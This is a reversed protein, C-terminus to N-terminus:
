RDPTKRTRPHGKRKWPWFRPRCEEIVVDPAHTRVHKVILNKLEAERAFYNGISLHEKDTWLDLTPIRKPSTVRTLDCWRIYSSSVLGRYRIGHETVEVKVRGLTILFVAGVFLVGLVPVVGENSLHFDVIKPFLCVRVLGTNYLIVYACFAIAVIGILPILPCIRYNKRSQGDIM